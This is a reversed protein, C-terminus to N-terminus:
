AHNIRAYEAEILARVQAVAADLDDNVVQHDYEGARVLERRANALRRQITAEDETGRGRLRAELVQPTSTRLFISMTGPRKQRVQAAGQVDIVLLVATGHELYPTVELEPTGYWNGVIEAWELFGGRQLEDMFQQRSWFHYHVGDVERPRPPRTTASVSARAPIVTEM